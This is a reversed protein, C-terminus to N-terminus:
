KRKAAYFIQKGINSFDRMVDLKEHTSAQLKSAKRLLTIGVTALMLLFLTAVTMFVIAVILVATQLGNM